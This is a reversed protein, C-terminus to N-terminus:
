LKCKYYESEPIEYLNIDECHCLPIVYIDKHLERLSGIKQNTVLVHNRTYKVSIGNNITDVVRYYSGGHMFIVSGKLKGVPIGKCKEKVIFNAEYMTKEKLNKAIM